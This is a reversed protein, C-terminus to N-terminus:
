LCPRYIDSFSAGGKNFSINKNNRYFTQLTFLVDSSLEIFKRRSINCKIVDNSM